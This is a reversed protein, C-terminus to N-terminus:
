NTYLGKLFLDMVLCNEGEMEKKIDECLVDLKGKLEEDELHKTNLCYMSPRTRPGVILICALM